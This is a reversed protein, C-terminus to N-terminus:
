SAASTVPRSNEDLQILDNRLMAWIIVAAGCQKSIADPDYKGDAVFKGCTHHCSFSWLYPSNVPPQVGRYGFGNYGELQYLLGPLSWDSVQDLARFRLADMASEEWTFPPTGNVPRGKPVQVTRGTLPDGNHLHSQFSLSSEMCHIAGIFYWPIRLASGVRQYRDKNKCIDTVSKEIDNAHGPTIACSDFLKKYEQKLEDTLTIKM